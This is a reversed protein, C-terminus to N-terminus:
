QAFGYSAAKSRYMAGEEHEHWLPATQVTEKLLFFHFRFLSPPSSPSPSYTWRRHQRTKSFVGIESSICRDVKTIPKTHHNVMAEQFKVLRSALTSLRVHDRDVRSSVESMEDCLGPAPRRRRTRRFRVTRRLLHLHYVSDRSSSRRCRQTCQFAVQVQSRM